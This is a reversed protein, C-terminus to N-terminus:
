TAFASKRTNIKQIIIIIYYYYNLHIETINIKKYGTSM